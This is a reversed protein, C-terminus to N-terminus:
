PVRPGQRMGVYIAYKNKPNMINVLLKAHRVFSDTGKGQEQREKHGQGRHPQTVKDQQAHSDTVKLEQHPQTVKFPLKVEDAEPAGSVCFLKWRENQKCKFLLGLMCLLVLRTLWVGDPPTKM